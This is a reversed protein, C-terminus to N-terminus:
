REKRILVKQLKKDDERKKYEVLLNNFLKDFDIKSALIKCQEHTLNNSEKKIM